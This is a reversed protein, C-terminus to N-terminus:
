TTPGQVHDFAGNHKLSFCLPLPRKFSPAILWRNTRLKQMRIPGDEGFGSEGTM